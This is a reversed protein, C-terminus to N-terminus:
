NKWKRYRRIVEFNIAVIAEEYEELFRVLHTRMETEFDGYDLPNHVLRLKSRDSSDLKIDLSLGRVGNTTLQEYISGEQDVGFLLLWDGNAVDKNAASNHSMIMTHEHFRLEGDDQNFSAISVVKLLLLLAKWATMKQKQRTPTPGSLCIDGINHGLVTNHGLVMYPLRIHGLVM